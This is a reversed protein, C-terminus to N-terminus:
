YTRTKEPDWSESPHHIESFKTNGTLIFIRDSVRGTRTEREQDKFELLVSDEEGIASEVGVV